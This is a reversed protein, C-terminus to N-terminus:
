QRIILDLKISFGELSHNEKASILANKSFNALKDSNSVLKGIKDVLDDINKQNFLYGNKGEEIYCKTGNENSCIVPLGHALAEVPSYAAPESYSALVFIDHLQYQKIIDTYNLNKIINVINSLSKEKIYNIIENLYKEDANEGVLTLNIKYNNNILENVAKLLLTQGKRKVFKGISLIKVEDTKNIGKEFDNVPFIFPVYFINKIGFNIFAEYNSKIPTVYAYVGLKQFLKINLKFLFVSGKIHTFTTQTLMLLKIKFHKAILLTKIALMNQYAKLIIVDPKYTKITRSLEKGPTQIRLELDSKLKGKKFLKITKILLNSFLSLKIIQIDTSEYYESEGKYLVLVKVKHGANQLSIVRYYLNTHFRPAIILFKIQNKNTL